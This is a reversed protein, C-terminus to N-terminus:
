LSNAVLDWSAGAAAVFLVAAIYNAYNSIRIWTTEIIVLFDSGESAATLPLGFFSLAAM